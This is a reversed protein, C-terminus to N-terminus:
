TVKLFNTYVPIDYGLNKCWIIRLYLSILPYAYEALLVLTHAPRRTSSASLEPSKQQLCSWATNSIMLIYLKPHGSPRSKGMEPGLQRYLLPVALDPCNPWLAEISYKLRERIIRWSFNLILSFRLVDDTRGM